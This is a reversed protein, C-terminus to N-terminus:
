DTYLDDHLRTDHDGPHRPLLDRVMFFRSPRDNWLLPFSSVEVPLLTRDPLIHESYTDLPPGDLKADLLKDLEIRRHPPLVEDVGRARLDERSMQYKAVAADNAEVVCRSECDLVFMPWPATEILQRCMEAPWPATGQAGAPAGTACDSLPTENMGKREGQDQGPSFFQLAM